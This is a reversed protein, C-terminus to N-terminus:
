VMTSLEHEVLSYRLYTIGNLNIQTVGPYNMIEDVVDFDTIEYGLNNIEHVLRYKPMEEIGITKEIIKRLKESEM